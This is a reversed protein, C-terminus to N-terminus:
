PRRLATTLRHALRGRYGCSRTQRRCTCARHLCLVHLLPQLKLRRGSLWNIPLAPLSAAHTQLTAQAPLRATTMSQMLHRGTRRLSPKHPSLQACNLEHRLTHLSAEAKIAQRPQSPAPAPVGVLPLPM